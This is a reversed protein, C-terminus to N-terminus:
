KPETDPGFKIRDREAKLAEQAEMMAEIRRDEDEGAAMIKRTAELLTVVLAAVAEPIM